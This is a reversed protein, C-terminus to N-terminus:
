DSYQRTSLSRSKSARGVTSGIAICALVVLSTVMAGLGLAILIGSRSSLAGAHICYPMLQPIYCALYGAAGAVMAITGALIGSAATSCSSRAAWLLLMAGTAGMLFGIGLVAYM